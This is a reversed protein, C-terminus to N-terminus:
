YSVVLCPVHEGHEKTRYYIMIWGHNPKEGSLFDRVDGTVDWAMWEDVRGPVRDTASVEPSADPETTRSTSEYCGALLWSAVLMSAVARTGM